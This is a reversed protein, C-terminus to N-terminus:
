KVIKPQKGIDTKSGALVVVMNSVYYGEYVSFDVSFSPKLKAVVLQFCLEVKICHLPVASLTAIQNTFSKNYKHKSINQLQCM